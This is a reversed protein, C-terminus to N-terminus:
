CLYPIIYLYSSLYGCNARYKTIVVCSFLHRLTKTAAAGKRRTIIASHLLVLWKKVCHAEDLVFAVMKEQYIPSQIMDRCEINGLLNEPSFFLLEYEGQKMREKDNNNLDGTYVAKVGKVALIQVQEKM